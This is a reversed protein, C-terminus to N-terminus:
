ANGDDWISMQDILEGSVPRVLRVQIVRMFNEDYPGAHRTMVALEPKGTDVTWITAVELDSEGCERATYDHEVIDALTGAFVTGDVCVVLHKQTFTPDEPTFMVTKSTM